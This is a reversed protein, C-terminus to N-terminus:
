HQHLRRCLPWLCQGQVLLLLLARSACPWSGTQGRGEGHLLRTGMHQGPSSLTGLWGWDLAPHLAEEGRIVWCLLKREGGWPGNM